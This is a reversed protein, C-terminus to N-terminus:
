ENYTKTIFVDKYEKKLQDYIYQADQKCKCIGFITPGSGSMLVGRSGLNLMRNKISKIEPYAISTVDELINQLYPIAGEIDRKDIAKLVKNTNPHKLKKNFNINQYAWSTSVSFEPKVLVLWTPPLPNLSKLVEGIGTALVTGGLLCFPIDAGISGGLEMLRKIPLNLNWLENLAKLTGAANTSGGALGAAVPIYKHITIEIGKDVNYEKKLLKAATYVINDENKPVESHECHIIIDGQTVKFEMEDYLDISQMIMEVEHYGDKRKALVDLTLNIKARTKIHKKNIM